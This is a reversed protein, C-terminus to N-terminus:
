VKIFFNVVSIPHLNNHYGGGGTGPDTMGTGTTGTGTTGSNDTSGAFNNNFPTNNTSGSSAWHGVSWGAGGPNIPHNYTLTVSLSPISLGPISLGPVSLSPVSLSPVNHTHLPLETTTLQHSQEGGAGSTPQTGLSWASAYIATGTGPGLPSRGRFDPVNFNSGSGGYTYGIAAFLSAYQTTGYQSGDCLLWGLPTASVASIKLDGSQFQTGQIATRRDAWDTGIVSNAQGSIGGAWWAYTPTSATCIIVVDAIRMRGPTVNPSYGAALLTSLTYSGGAVATGTVTYFAGTTDIELGIVQVQSTTTTLGSPTITQSQGLYGVPNLLGNTGKVMAPIIGTASPQFTLAGTSSNLGISGNATPIQLDTNLYVGQQEASSAVAITNAIANQTVYPYISANSAHSAATSGEAGRNPVMWTTGNTNAPQVSTSNGATGTWFSGSFNTTYDPDWYSIAATSQTFSWGDIYMDVTQGSGTCYGWCSIQATVANSPMLQTASITNVGSGFPGPQIASIQAGNIDQWSVKAYILGTPITLANITVTLTYPLGGIVPIYPSIMGDFEAGASTRTIRMSKSGYQSWGTQVQFTSELGSNKSWWAPASSTTDHEFSPNQALNVVSGVQMIENDIVIHFQGPYQQNTPAATNTIIYPQSSTISGNLTTLATLAGPTPSNTFLEPLAM